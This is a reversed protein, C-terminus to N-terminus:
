WVGVMEVTKLGERAQPHKSTVADSAHLLRGKRLNAQAAAHVRVVGCKGLNGNNVFSDQLGYFLLMMPM